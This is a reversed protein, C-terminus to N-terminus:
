PARLRADGVPPERRHKARRRRVLLYGITVLALAPLAAAFGTLLAVALALVLGAMPVWLRATRPHGLGALAFMLVGAFFLDTVGVVALLKGHRPVAISLHQLLSSTGIAYHQILRATVGSTTSVADAVAGAVLFSILAGEAALWRGVVGGALVAVAIVIADDLLWNAPKLWCELALAGVAVGACVGLALKSVGRVTEAGAFVLLVAAITVGFVLAVFGPTM